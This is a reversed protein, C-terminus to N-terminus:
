SDARRGGPSSGSRSRSGARRGCWRRNRRRRTRDVDTDKEFVAGAGVDATLEREDTKILRVGVGVTPSFLYDIKKFRDRLYQADGFAFWRPRFYYEDRLQAFTRDVTSAGNESNRLYFGDAKVLNKTRPDYQMSLAVNFSRTSSNGSTFNFGAAFRGTLPKPKKEDKDDPEKPKNEAEQALADGTPKDAAGPPPPTPPAPKPAQAEALNFAALICVSLVFITSRRKM